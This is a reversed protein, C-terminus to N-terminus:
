TKAVRALPNMGFSGGGQAAKRLATRLNLNKKVAPCACWSSRNAKGKECWSKVLEKGAEASQACAECQRHFDLVRDSKASYQEEPSHVFELPQDFNM